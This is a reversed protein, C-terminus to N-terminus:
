GEQRLRACPVSGPQFCFLSVGHSADADTWEETVACGDLIGSVRDHGDLTDGVYVDWTGLWFDLM